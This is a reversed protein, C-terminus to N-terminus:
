LISSHLQSEITPHQTLKLIPNQLWCKGKPRHPGQKLVKTKTVHNKLPIHTRCPTKTFIYPQM